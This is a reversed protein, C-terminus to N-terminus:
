DKIEKILRLIKEIKKFLEKKDKNNIVKFDAFKKTKNFNFVKEEKKEVKIFEKLNEKAEKQRHRKKARKWRLVVPADIFILKANFTKKLLEAQDPHRIGDVVWREWKSSKIKEIVKNIFYHPYRARYKAQLNHLNERTPKLKLKRALARVLNGMIIRKFGYKEVLYRAVTGKGSAITGILGLVAKEIKEKKEKKKGKNKRKDVKDKM